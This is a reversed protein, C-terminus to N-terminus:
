IQLDDPSETYQLQKLFGSSQFNFVELAPLERTVKILIKPIPLTGSLTFICSSGNKKSLGFTCGSKMFGIFKPIKKTINVNFPSSQLM